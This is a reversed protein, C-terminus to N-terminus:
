DITGLVTNAYRPVRRTSYCRDPVNQKLLDYWRLHRLFLLNTSVSLFAFSIHAHSALLGPQEDDVHERLSGKKKRRLLAGFAAESRRERM